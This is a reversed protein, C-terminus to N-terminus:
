FTAPYGPFTLSPIPDEDIVLETTAYEKKITSYTFANNSNLLGYIPRTDGLDSPVLLIPWRGGETALHVDDRIQDAQAVTECFFSVTIKRSPFRNVNYVAPTGGRTRTAIQGKHNAIVSVGATANGGLDKLQALVVEGITHAGLFLNNGIAVRYARYNWMTAGGQLTVPQPKLTGAANVALVVPGTFPYNTGEVFFSQGPEINHGHLGVYNIRPSVSVEDVWAAGGNANCGVIVQIQTHARGVAAFSEATFSADNVVSWAAASQSALDVAVAQWTTGNWYRGTVVDWIRIFAARTGDGRLAYRLNYQDGAVLTLTQIRTGLTTFKLSFSGTQFQDNARDSTGSAVSWGPVGSTEFGPNLLLNLDASFIVFSPQTGLKCPNALNGDYLASISYGTAAAASSVMATASPSALTERLKNLHRGAAFKFAM